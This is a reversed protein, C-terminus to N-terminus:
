ISGKFSNSYYNKLEKILSKYDIKDSVLPSGNAKARLTASSTQRKHRRSVVHVNHNDKRGISRNCKKLIIM